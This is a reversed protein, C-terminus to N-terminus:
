KTKLDGKNLTSFTDGQNGAVQRNENLWNKFGDEMKFYNNALEYINRRVTTKKPSLNWYFKGNLIDWKYYQKIIGEISAGTATKKDWFNFGFYSAIEFHQVMTTLAYATYTLGSRGDNRVVERQLYEGKEDKTFKWSEGKNRVSEDTREYFYSTQEILAEKLLLTDEFVVAATITGLIAADKWNNDKRRMVGLVDGEELCKQRWWSEFKQRESKTWDEYDHLLDAAYLMPNFFSGLQLGRDAGTFTTSTKAWKMLINKAKIAYKQDGSYSYALATSYAAYCNQWLIARMESLNSNKEYGGMINMTTPPSPIFVLQAEAVELLNLYASYQPESKDAIRKLVEAHESKNVVTMPHSFVIHKLSIDYAEHWPSPSQPFKEESQSLLFFAILLLMLLAKM